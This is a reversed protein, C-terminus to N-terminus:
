GSAEDAPVLEALASCLDEPLPCYVDVPKRENTFSRAQMTFNGRMEDETTCGGDSVTAQMAAKGSGNDEAFVPVDLFGLHYTHLFNRPCWIRDAAFRSEAYGM